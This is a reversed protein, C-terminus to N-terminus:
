RMGKLRYVISVDNIEFAAPVTGDTAFRLRFSKINSSQSLVDPILEAVQWGSASPLEPVTFDHTFATDGDVGYDVQVNTTAGGSQYTVIVKYVTKKQGPNGFDIDKTSMVMATSTDAADDWKVFTGTNSTHAYVLDGNWDTVFNTKVQDIVRNSANNIGKTWSQTVMDYLYMRPNATSNNSIDDYVILQRKKPLYGIMPTMLTGSGDKAPTLFNFWESEKIIQRGGKELLNTVKQGDYIYCGRSNVWAIGFDTKCTAAPHSVGKHMFIDEVFELEQSINLLELKNKKFILIRDAYTELKVISDGDNISVELMRDSSFVDFKNVPSKFVADGYITGDYQVNGVYAIRNAIVATKYKATSSTANQSIGANISYTIPLLTYAVHAADLCLTTVNNTPDLYGWISGGTADYAQTSSARVGSRLSIETVQQWVDNTNKLRAYVRGGTLRADYPANAFVNVTIYQNATITITGSCVYPISEQDGGSPDGPEKDYIFTTAFEYTGAPISGTSGSAIVHLNFGTGVPPYIVFYNGIWNSGAIDTGVTNSDTYSTIAITENDTVNLIIHGVIEDEWDATFTDGETLSETSSDGAASNDVLNGVIGRTPAAIEANAVHWTDYTDASGGPTLGSFHTRDVYGYWKNAHTNRFESDCIRLAGDVVYFVDKRQGTSSTNDTLGTIPNGWFPQDLEYISIVGTTDSDSFVLYDTGTEAGSGATHGDIRDHSFQFLGYGPTIANPRNAAGQAITGGMMRIKGLEDVMVDTAESLENEAIDRADSNSNLGGHFQTIKYLQKPM